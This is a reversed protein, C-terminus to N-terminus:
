TTFVNRSRIAKYGYPRLHNIDWMTINTRTHYLPNMVFPGTLSWALGSMSAMWPRWFDVGNVANYVSQILIFNMLSGWMEMIIDTLEDLGDRLNDGMAVPQLNEVKEFPNSLGGWVWRSGSNNGAILEISPAPLLKGGISNTEGRLGFGKVGKGGGTVLKIGERGIVRVGDAKIAVASHGKVPGMRGEALGFNLDVDTAHSIYIRAADGFMSNDVISGDRPGKGKRTGSMRGVVLDITASQLAGKGGYGSARSGPRDVGLVIQAQGNPGGLVTEVDSQDYTIDPYPGRTGMLGSDPPVKSLGHPADKAELRAARRDAIKKQRKMEKEASTIYQQRAKSIKGDVDWIKIFKDIRSM